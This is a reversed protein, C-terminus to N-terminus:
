PTKPRDAAPAKEPHSTVPGLELLLNKFWDPLLELDEPKPEEGVVKWGQGEPFQFVSEEVAVDARAEIVRYERTSHGDPSVLYYRRPLFTKRDLALYAKSFWPRRSESPETFSLIWREDEQKLLGVRYRPGVADATLNWFFPLALMEPYRGRDSEGRPWVFHKKGEFRLQHFARGTWVLRESPVFTGDPAQKETEVAARGSRQLVVRGRLREDGWAPNRSELTFRVDV